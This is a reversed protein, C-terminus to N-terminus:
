IKESISVFFFHKLSERNFKGLQIYRTFLFLFYHLILNTFLQLHICAFSRSLVFFRCIHKKVKSLREMAQMNELFGLNNRSPFGDREWPYKMTKTKSATNGISKGPHLCYSCGFSGNFQHMNLVSAKAPLDLSAHTLSVNFRLDIREIKVCLQSKQIDIIEKALPEFFAKIDPKHEGFYLGGVVINSSHFRISPPLFNLYFQIPWLSKPSSEFLTAGDTNMLISLNIANKERQNLAKLVEGDRIDKITNESNHSNLYASIESWHKEILGKLQNAIGIHVFFNEEELTLLGNCKRCNTTTTHDAFDKEYGTYLSCDECLIYFSLPIDSDERFKKMLKFKTEPLKFSNGPIKNILKASEELCTLSWNHKLYHSLFEKWFNQIEDYKKQVACDSANSANLESPLSDSTVNSPISANSGVNLILFPVNDSTM